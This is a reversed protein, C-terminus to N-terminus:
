KSKPRRRKSDVPGPYALIAVILEALLVIIVFLM